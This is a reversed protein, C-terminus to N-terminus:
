CQISLDSSLPLDPPAGAAHERADKRTWELVAQEATPQLLLLELTQPKGKNVLSRRDAAHTPMAAKM